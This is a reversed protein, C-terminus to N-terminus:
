SVGTVASSITPMKSSTNRHASAFAKALMCLAIVTALMAAVVPKTIAALDSPIILLPSRIGDALVGGVTLLIVVCAVGSV